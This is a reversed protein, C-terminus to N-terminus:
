RKHKRKLVRCPIEVKISLSPFRALSITTLKGAKQPLTQFVAAAIQNGHQFLQLGRCNVHACHFVRQVLVLANM